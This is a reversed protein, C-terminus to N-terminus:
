YVRIRIARVIHMALPCPNFAAVATYFWLIGLRAERGQLLSFNPKLIGRFKRLQMEPYRLETREHGSAIGLSLLSRVIRLTRLKFM